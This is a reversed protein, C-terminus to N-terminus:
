SPDIVPRVNRESSEQSNPEPKFKSAHESRKDEEEKYKKSEEEVLYNQIMCKVIQRRPM